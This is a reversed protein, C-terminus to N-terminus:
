IEKHDIHFPIQFFAHVSLDCLSSVNLILFIRSRNSYYFNWLQSPGSFACLLEEHSFKQAWVKYLKHSFAAFGHLVVTESWLECRFLFVSPLNYVNDLFTSARSTPLVCSVDHISGLLKYCKCCFLSLDLSVGAFENQVFWLEGIRRICFPTRFLPGDEQGDILECLLFVKGTGEVLSNLTKWCSQFYTDVHWLRYSSQFYITINKFFVWTFMYFIDIYM